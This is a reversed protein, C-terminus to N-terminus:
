PKKLNPYNLALMEYFESQKCLVTKVKLGTKQEIEKIGATNYPDLVALILVSGIKDTPMMKHKWVLEEPVAKIADHSLGYKNIKIYPVRCQIAFVSILQEETLLRNEVLIEGLLKKDPGAYKTQIDLAKLLDDNSIMNLKLLASGLSGFRRKTRDEAPGAKKTKSIATDKLPTTKKNDSDKHEKKIHAPETNQKKEKKTFWNFLM